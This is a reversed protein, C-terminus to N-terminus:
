KGAISQLHAVLGSLAKARHSNANKEEMSMEAFTLDSGEPRFVPDYGFGKNGRPQRTIVGQIEGKFYM